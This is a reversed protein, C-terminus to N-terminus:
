AAMEKGHLIVAGNAAGARAPLQINNHAFTQVDMWLHIEQDHQYRTIVIVDFGEEPRYHYLDTKGTRGYEDRFQEQAAEAFPAVLVAQVPMTGPFSKDYARGRLFQFSESIIAAQIYSYPLRTM